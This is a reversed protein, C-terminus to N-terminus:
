GDGSGNVKDGDGSLSRCPEDDTARDEGGCEHQNIDAGGEVVRQYAGPSTVQKLYKVM